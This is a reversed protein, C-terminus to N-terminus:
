PLEGSQSILLHLVFAVAEARKFDTTRAGGPLVWGPEYETGNAARCADGWPVHAAGFRISPRRIM